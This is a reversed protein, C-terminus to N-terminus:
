SHIKYTKKKKRRKKKNQQQSRMEISELKNLIHADTTSEIISEAVLFQTSKTELFSKYEPDNEITDELENYESVASLNSQFLNYEIPTDSISKLENVLDHLDSEKTTSFYLNNNIMYDPKLHTYLSPDAVNYLICRKQKQFSM